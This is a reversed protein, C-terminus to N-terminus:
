GAWWGFALGLAVGVGYILACLILAGIAGWSLLALTDNASQLANRFNDREGERIDCRERMANLQEDAIKWGEQAARLQEQCATLKNTADIEQACSPCTRIISMIEGESETGGTRARNKELMDCLENGADRETKRWLPGCGNPCQQPENNAKALNQAVNLTTSVLSLNCKACKFVGPVYVLRELRAIEADQEAIRQEQEIAILAQGIFQRVDSGVFHQHWDDRRAAAQASMLFERTLPLKSTTAPTADKL